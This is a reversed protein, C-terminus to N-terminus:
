RGYVGHRQRHRHVVATMEAKLESAIRWESAAVLSALHEVTGLADAYKGELDTAYERALTAQNELEAVKETAPMNGQSYIQM